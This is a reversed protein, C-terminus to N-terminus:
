FFQRGYGAFTSFSQYAGASDTTGSRCAWIRFRVGADFMRGEGAARTVTEEKRADLRLAGGGPGFDAAPDERCAAAALCLALACPVASRYRKEMIDSKNPGNDNNTAPGPPIYRCITNAETKGTSIGAKWCCNM